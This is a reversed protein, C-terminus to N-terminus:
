VFAESERKQETAHVADTDKQSFVIESLQKAAEQIPLHAAGKLEWDRAQQWIGKWMKVSEKVADFTKEGYIIDVPVDFDAFQNVDRMESLLVLYRYIIEHNVERFSRTLNTKTTRHNKLSLNTIWRGIPNAFTTNYAHRGFGKAVFVKFYWPLYAFPDILIFRKVREKVKQAALLGLIAGSCYGVLIIEKSEIMLIADAIEDAITELTWEKPPDSYGYGPLDASYFSAHPPMQAVLQAFMRHDGGWGHLGFYSEEGSGYRKVYM